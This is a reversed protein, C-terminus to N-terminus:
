CLRHLKIWWFFIGAGMSLAALGTFVWRKGDKYSKYHVVTNAKFDRIKNNKGLM